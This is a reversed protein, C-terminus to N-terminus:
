LAAELWHHHTLRGNNIRDFNQTPQPLAIFLVMAELDGIFGQNGGGGQTIAIDTIAEKRILGDIQDIFGTAPHPQHIGFQRRGGLFNITLQAVDLFLFFFRNAIM